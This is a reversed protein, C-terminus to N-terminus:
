RAVEVMTLTCGVDLPSQVQARVRYVPRYPARFVVPRAATDEPQLEWGWQRLPAWTVSPVGNPDSPDNYTGGELVLTVTCSLPTPECGVFVLCTTAQEGGSVMQVEAEVGLAVASVRRTVAGDKLAQPGVFALTEPNLSEVVLDRVRLGREDFVLPGGEGGLAFVGDPGGVQVEVDGGDGSLSLQGNAIRLPGSELTSPTAGGSGGSAGLVLQQVATNLQQVQEYLQNIDVVKPRNLGSGVEDYAQANLKLELRGVREQLEDSAQGGIPASLGKLDGVLVARDNKNGTRGMLIHLTERVRQEFNSAGPPPLDHLM